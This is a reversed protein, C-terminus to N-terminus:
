NEVTIWVNGIGNERVLQNFYLANDPHQRICGHSAKRGLKSWSGQPTGHLAFGGKIFVAYPMNGLGNYDGGPYKASNYRTYIRGDPHKDFNPTDRGPIGSSVKWSATMEGNLYLYLMQDNKSVRAWVACTERRCSGGGNALNEIMFPSEGTEMEYARDFEQLKQEVDPAFPDLEAPESAAVKVTHRAAASAAAPLQIAAAATAVCLFSFIRTFASQM